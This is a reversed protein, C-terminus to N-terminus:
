KEANCKACVTALFIGNSDEVSSTFRIVGQGKTLVIPDGGNPLETGCFKRLNVQRRGERITLKSKRCNKRPETYFELFTIHIEPCQESDEVKSLYLLVLNLFM